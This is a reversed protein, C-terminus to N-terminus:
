LHGPWRYEQEGVRGAVHGARDQAGVAAPSCGVSAELGGAHSPLIARDSALLFSIRMGSATTKARANVAGAKASVSTILAARRMSGSAPVAVGFATMTTSCPRIPAIPEEAVIGFPAWTISRPSRLM